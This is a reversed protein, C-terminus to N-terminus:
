AVELVLSGEARGSRLDDLAQPADALAYTTVATRVGAV